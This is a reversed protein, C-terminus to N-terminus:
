VEIFTTSNSESLVFDVESEFTDIFEELEKQKKQVFDVDPHLKAENKELFPKSISEFDNKSKSDKGFNAELLSDLREQVRYNINEVEETTSGLDRKINLNLEKFYKISDKLEIAETVFIKEDGITVVTKSNSTMIANKIKRRQQILDNISQIQVKPNFDQVNSIKNVVYAGFTNEQISKNIRKDLLKLENLARTISINKM